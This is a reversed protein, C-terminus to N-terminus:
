RAPLTVPQARGLRSSPREVWRYFLSATLLSACFACLLGCLAAMPTPRIDHGAVEHGAAVLNRVMPLGMSGLGVFGIRAKDHM